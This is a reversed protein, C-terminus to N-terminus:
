KRIHAISAIEILCNPPVLDARICYRAPPAEDFYKAYVQNMGAYDELNRLFISNFTVDRLSGGAEEVITKITDIVQRTQARIDGVGVTTKMDEALSLIGAVYLVGDALVGPSYPVPPKPLSPPVIPTRSMPNEPHRRFEAKMVNDVGFSLEIVINNYPDQTVLLFLGDVRTEYRRYQLNMAELRSVALSYDRCDFAVHNLRGTRAGDPEVDGGEEVANV